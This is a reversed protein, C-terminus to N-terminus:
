IYAEWAFTLGTSTHCNVTVIGGNFDIGAIPLDANLVCDFPATLAPRCRAAQVINGSYNCYLVFIKPTETFGTDITMNQESHTFTGTNVCSSKPPLKFTKVAFTKVHGNNDRTINTVAAFGDGNALETPSSQVTPNSIEIAPHEPTDPLKFLKVDFTKVHGNYDRTINTVAAFIGGANIETPTSSATPNQSPPHEVLKKDIVEFNANLQAINAEDTTEPLKLKHKDTYKM